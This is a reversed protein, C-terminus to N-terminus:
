VSMCKKLLSYLHPKLFDKTQNLTYNNRKLFKSLAFIIERESLYGSSSAQWGQSGVDTFQHFNFKSNTLFLGFGSAIALLDTLYEEDENDLRPEPSSLLIYHCLEHALTSILSNVDNLCKPNCTIVVLDNLDNSNNDVSFTGLASNEIGQVILTEGVIPNIDEEQMVLKCPWDDLGMLSKIEDFVHQARDHGQEPPRTFFQSTPTILPVREEPFEINKELWNYNEEIWGAQEVDVISKSKSFLGFM